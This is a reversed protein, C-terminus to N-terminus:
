WGFNGQLFLAGSEFGGGSTIKYGADVAAGPGLTFSYGILAMRLVPRDFEAKVSHTEIYKGIVATWTSTDVAITGGYALDWSISRGNIVGALFDLDGDDIVPVFSKTGQFLGGGAVRVRRFDKRVSAWGGGGYDITGLDIAQSSQSLSESHSYLFGTRATAGIRVIVPGEVELYPHYDFAVAWANTSLDARQRAFRAQVSAFRGIGYLGQWAWGSDDPQSGDRDFWEVEILGGASFRRLAGPERVAEVNLATSLLLQQAYLQGADRGLVASSLSGPFIIALLRVANDRAWNEFEQRTRVDRDFQLIDGGGSITFDIEDVDDFDAGNNNRDIIRSDIVGSFLRGNVSRIPSPPANDLALLADSIGSQAYAPAATLVAVLGGVVLSRLHGNM